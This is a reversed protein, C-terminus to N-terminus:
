HLVELSVLQWNGDTRHLITCQYTDSLKAYYVKVQFQGSGLATVRSPSYDQADFYSVGLQKEIFQTCASFAMEGPTSTPKAPSSKGNLQTLALIVICLVVVILVAVGASSQRKPQETSKQQVTRQSSTNLTTLDRGCFRCVIASEQIMEACYPCKKLSSTQPQVNMIPPANIPTQLHSQSNKLQNLLTQAKENQPNIRLVQILCSLKEKDDNAVNYMFQWARENNQNQKIAAIFYKRAEDRKGAKYATIGQQLLDDMIKERKSQQALSGGLPKRERLMRQPPRPSQKPSSFVRLWFLEEL